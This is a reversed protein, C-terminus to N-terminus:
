DRDSYDRDGKKPKSSEERDSYERSQESQKKEEPYYGKEEFFKQRKAEKRKERLEHLPGGPAALKEYLEPNDEELDDITEYGGYAKEKEVQTKSKDLGSDKRLGRTWVKIKNYAPLSGGGATAWIQFSNILTDLALIRLQEDSTLSEIGNETVKEYIRGLDKGINLIDISRNILIGLQPVYASVVSALEKVGQYGTIDDVNLPELYVSNKLLGPIHKKYKSDIPALMAATATAQLMAKGGASYKSGVLGIGGALTEMMYGYGTFLYKLQEEGKEKDDEGGLLILTMAYAVSSLYSYLSVNIAVGLPKLLQRPAQKYNGKRM